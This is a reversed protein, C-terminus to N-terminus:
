RMRSMSARSCKGCATTRAPAGPRALVRQRHHQRLRHIAQLTRTRRGAQNKRDSSWSRECLAPRLGRLASKGLRNLRSLKLSVSLFSVRMKIWVWGSTSTM